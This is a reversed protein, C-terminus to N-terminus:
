KVTGKLKKLQLEFQILEENYKKHQEYIDDVFRKCLNLESLTKDARAAERLILQRDRSSFGWVDPIKVVQTKGAIIVKTSLYRTSDLGYRAQYVGGAYKRTLDDLHQTTENFYDEREDNIETLSKQLTNSLVDTKQQAQKAIENTLRENEISQTVLQRQLLDREAEAYGKAGSYGAYYSVGMLLLVLSGKLLYPHRTFVGVVQRIFIKIAILYM